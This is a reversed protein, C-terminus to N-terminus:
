SKPHDILSYVQAELTPSNSQFKRLNLGGERLCKKCKVYFDFAETDISAGSNLDDVHLAQLFNRLLTLILSSIAVQVNSRHAQEHSHHCLPM